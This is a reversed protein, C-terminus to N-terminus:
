AIHSVHKLWRTARWVTADLVSHWFGVATSQSQRQFSRAEIEIGSLYEVCYALLLLREWFVYFSLKIFAWLLISLILVPFMM